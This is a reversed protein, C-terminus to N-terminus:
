KAEYKEGQAPKANPPNTGELSLIYNAVDQIDSASLQTKWAIMGKEPIGYKVSKFVNKIGGGHVWYEDTLNPGVGGEGAGGHCAACNQMYIGKGSEIVKLDNLVAVTNEDISNTALKMYAEKEKEALAIEEEYEQIQLKASDTFHYYYIYIGSFIITAYFMYKWWPPLNNDLERIDDYVHDTLITDEKEVPISDTLSKVFGAFWPKREATGQLHDVFLNMLYLVYAFALVIFGLVAIVFLNVLGTETFAESMGANTIFPTTILVTLLLYGRNM